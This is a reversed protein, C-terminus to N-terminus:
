RNNTLYFTFVFLRDKRKEYASSEHESPGRETFVNERIKVVMKKLSNVPDFYCSSLEENFRFGIFESTYDNAVFSLYMFKEKSSSKGKIIFHKCAEIISDAIQEKSVNSM